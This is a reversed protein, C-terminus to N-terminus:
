HRDIRRATENFLRGPALHPPCGVDLAITNDRQFYGAALACETTEKFLLSIIQYLFSIPDPKTIKFNKALLKIGPM